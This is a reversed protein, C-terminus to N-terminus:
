GTKQRKQGRRFALPSVGVRKRFTKSFHPADSFGVDYAISEITATSFTLLHQAEELRKQILYDIPSLKFERKFESSFRSVSLAAMRALDALRIREMYHIDVHRKVALFRRAHTGDTEGGDLKRRIELCLNEISNTLIDPHPHEHAILEADLAHQCRDFFTRDGCSVPQLLPVAHRLVLEEIVRGRATIWSHSYGKEDGYCLPTHPPFALLSLAPARVPVGRIRALAPTHFFLFVYVPRGSEVSRYVSKSTLQGLSCVRLECAEDTEPAFVHHFPRM